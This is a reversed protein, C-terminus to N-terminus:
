TSHTSCTLLCSREEHYLQTSVRALFVGAQAARFTIIDPAFLIVEHPSLDTIIYRLMQVALSITRALSRINEHYSLFRRNFEEYEFRFNIGYFFCIARSIPHLEGPAVVCL